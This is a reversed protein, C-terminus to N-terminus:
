RPKLISVARTAGIRTSAVSFTTTPGVRPRDYCRMWVDALDPHLDALSGKGEIVPTWDVNPYSHSAEFEMGAQAELRGDTEADYLPDSLRVELRTLGISKRYKAWTCACRTTAPEPDRMRWNWMTSDDGLVLEWEYALRPARQPRLHRTHPLAGTRRARIQGGTRPPQSHGSLSASQGLAVPVARRGRTAATTTPGPGGAAPDHRRAPLSAVRRGVAHQSELGNLAATAALDLGYWDTIQM